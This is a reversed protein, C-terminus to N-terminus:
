EGTEVPGSAAEGKCEVRVYHEAALAAIAGEGSAIVAQRYTGARVDGAAYIGELNTRMHADTLIYGNGDTKIDAKIYSTNPRHGTYNFIGDLPIETIQDTKINRIKMGKVTDDGIIEEIISDFIVKINPTGFLQQQLIKEARLQDRRHVIYLQKVFNSLYISEDVAADGGGIVAITKGRFFMADCIACTSVGKGVFDAYRAVELPRPTGGTAIIVAGCTFKDNETAVIKM